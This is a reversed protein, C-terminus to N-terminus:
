EVVKIKYFTFIFKKAVLLAEAVTKVKRLEHNMLFADTAVNALALPVQGSSVLSVGSDTVTLYKANNLIDTLCLVFKKSKPKPM